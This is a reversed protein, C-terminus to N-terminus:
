SAVKVAELAQQYIHEHQHPHVTEKGRAARRREEICVQIFAEVVV